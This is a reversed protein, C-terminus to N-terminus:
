KVPNRVVNAYVSYFM